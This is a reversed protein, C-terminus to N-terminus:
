SKKRLVFTRIVDRQDKRMHVLELENRRACVEQIRESQGYGIEFVLYGSPRLLHSAQQLIGSYTQDLNETLLAERPEWQTEAPLERFHSSEVYPPNAVVVDFSAALFPAAFLNGRIPTARGAINERLITIAEPSLELAVVKADPIEMALTLSICGSGAGLDLVRPKQPLSLQLVARIIEETEPRPILVSENVAFTHGYFEQTGEIYALPYHDSRKRLLKEYALIEEQTLNLTLNAYIESRERRIALLLLIEAEWRPRDIGNEKLLTEGYLLAEHITM